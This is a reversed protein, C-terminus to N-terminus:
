TTEKEARLHEATQVEAVIERLLVTDSENLFRYPAESVTRDRERAVAEAVHQEIAARLQMSREQVASEGDTDLDGSPTTFVATTTALRSAAAMVEDISM